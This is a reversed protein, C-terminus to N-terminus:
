GTESRAGAGLRELLRTARANEPNVSLAMRCCAGAAAPNGAEAHRDGLDVLLDEFRARLYARREEVFPSEGYFPCDDFLDGRYLRRAAELAEIAAAGPKATGEALQSEFADVDSWAVLQPALRYRGGEFTISDRAQGGEDLVSRLGGLTRHFALDGRRISLDPWIMETAEDKAIGARGRDFLFAFLAQAQRSGAKDGGWHRVPAGRREVRMSGLAHVRLRGDAEVSPAELAYAVAAATSMAEGERVAADIEERSLRTGGGGVAEPSAAGHAIEAIASQSVGRVRAAAAALRIARRPDGRTAALRALNELMTDIGSADDVAAFITLAERWSRESLDVRDLRANSLGFMHLSWALGFPDDLARFREVSFTLNPLAGEHDDAFSSNCGLAWILWAEGTGDGLSRYIELAETELARGRELDRIAELASLAHGLDYLASALESPDGVARRIALSEEYMRLATHADAHWYALSGAAALARARLRPDVDAKMDLLEALLQRGEGMHARIQWFRWLASGLRMGLEARDRDIAWRMAARFNNLERELRDLWPGQVPGTLLPAAREALDLYWAAHREATDDAEDTEVLRERGYERLTELMDYRAEARAEPQRRILSEDLLSTTLDLVDAGLERSALTVADAADLSWGGRFVALRRFFGREAPTLLGYSWTVAAHLSRHREPVDRAALTLLELSQDLRSRIVAVPLAKTRAAALELALPLGDLRRCIWAIDRVAQEDTEFGPTVAGAREVFLEVAESTVAAPDDPDTPVALPPVGFEHEGSLHLVARSTVLCHLRPAAALWGAVVTAGDLVHEFNDLVLLLHRGALSRGVVERMPVGAEEKLGLARAVAAAVHEPDEIPALPVFWVGDAFSRSAARAVEIALRTKGSGPPGTLTVLRESQLRERLRRLQADRGVFRTAPSPLDPAVVAM